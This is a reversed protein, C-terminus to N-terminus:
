RNSTTIFGDENLGRIRRRAVAIAAAPTTPAWVVSLVGALVDAEGGVLAVAFVSAEALASVLADFLALAGAVDMSLLAEVVALVGIDDSSLLEDAVAPPLAVGAGLDAAAFGFAAPALVSLVCTADAVGRLLERVCLL